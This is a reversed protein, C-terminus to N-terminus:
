YSFINLHDINIVNRTNSKETEKNSNLNRISSIFIMTPFHDIIDLKVIYSKINNISINKSFIHDLCSKSGNFVRTYNNICSVFEISLM